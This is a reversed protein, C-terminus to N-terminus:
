KCYTDVIPVKNDGVERHMWKWAEPNIPEGVSGMVRLSSRDWQKIPDSGFRMLARIATPSTYFINIKHKDVM